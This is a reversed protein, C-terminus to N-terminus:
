CCRGSSRQRGRHQLFLAKAAKTSMGCSARYPTLPYRAAPSKKGPARENELAGKAQVGGALEFRRYDVKHLPRGCRRPRSGTARHLHNPPASNEAAEPKKATGM